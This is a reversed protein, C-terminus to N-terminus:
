FLVKHNELFSFNELPKFFGRSGENVGLHVGLHVKHAKNQPVRPSFPGELTGGHGFQYKKLPTQSLM